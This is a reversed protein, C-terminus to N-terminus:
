NKLRVEVGKIDGNIAILNFRFCYFDASDVVVSSHDPTEHIYEDIIIDYTM